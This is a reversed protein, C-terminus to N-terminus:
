EDDTGKAGEQIWRRVLDIEAQSWPTRDKPMRAGRPYVGELKQIIASGEPNGAIVVDTGSSVGGKRLSGLTTLDLGGLQIGQPDASSQYHCYKCGFADPGDARSMLPRIDRSFVVPGTAADGADSVVPAANAPALYDVDPSCGASLALLLFTPSCTM